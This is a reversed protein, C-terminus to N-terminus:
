SFCRKAEDYDEVFDIEQWSRGFTSSCYVRAGEQALRLFAAADYEHHGGALLRGEVTDFLRETARVFTLGIWEGSAEELALHKGIEELRGDQSVRVKMAEEDVPGFDTVLLIDDARNQAGELSRALIEPEFIVDGHLYVFPAGAVFSRAFWLSGLNNCLAYFPNVICVCRDGVRAVVQGGEFGVIVAIRQIGVGRLLRLSREILSEDAVSLLCKPTQETLPHLRTARGAAVIVATEFEGSM